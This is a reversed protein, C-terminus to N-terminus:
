PASIPASGPPPALPNGHSVEANSLSFGAKLIEVAEKCADAYHPRRQMALTHLDETANIVYKIAEKREIEALTTTLFPTKCYPCKTYGGERLYQDDITIGIEEQFADCECDYTTFIM